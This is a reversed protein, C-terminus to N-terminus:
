GNEKVLNDFRNFDDSLEEYMEPDITHDGYWINEFVRTLNKFPEFFNNKDKLEDVLQSSTKFERLDLIGVKSLSLLIKLYQYRVALKYDKQEIAKAILDGFNIKNIDEISESIGSVKKEVNGYLFGRIDSKLLGIIIVLLAAIMIIYVLYDIFVSYAKSRLLSQIQMNIWDYIREIWNKDVDPNQLYNLDPDELYKKIKEDSPKRLHYPIAIEDPVGFESENVFNTYSTDIDWYRNTSGPEASQPFVIITISILLIFILIIRYFL